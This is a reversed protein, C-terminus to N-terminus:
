YNRAYTNGERLPVAGSGESVRFRTPLTNWKDFGGSFIALHLHPGNSWGVNGSWAIRDGKRVTDGPKVAAGGQRIHAYYAFTGDPHLITIYNNYQKCDSSACSRSNEQVVQVVTGERVALVETGEPMTFDLSNEGAHSFSGNYGQYLTYKEGKRFPLDYEYNRDWNKLAADGMATVYRFKLGIRTAAPDPTLLGIRFSDTRPPVLFMMKAGESFRLGTNDFELRVTMPYWEPNAAYITYGRDAAAAHFVRFKQSFALSSLAALLLTFIIKM